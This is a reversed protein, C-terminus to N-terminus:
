LGTFNQLARDKVTLGSRHAARIKEKKERKNQKRKQTQSEEPKKFTGM